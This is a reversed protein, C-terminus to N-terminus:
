KGDSEGGKEKGYFKRAFEMNDPNFLELTNMDYNSGISSTMYKVKNNPFAREMIKNIHCEFDDFLLDKRYTKTSFGKGFLEGYTLPEPIQLGMMKARETLDRCCYKDRTVIIAGTEASIKILKATKGTQRPWNFWTIENMENVGREVLDSM